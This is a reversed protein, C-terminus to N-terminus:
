LDSQTRGGAAPEEQADRKGPAVRHSWAPHVSAHAQVQVQVDDTQKNRSFKEKSFHLSLHSSLPCNEASLRLAQQREAKGGRSFSNPAEWEPDM